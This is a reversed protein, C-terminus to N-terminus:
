VVKDQKPQLWNIASAYSAVNNLMKSMKSLSEGISSASQGISPQSEEPKATVEVPSSYSGFLSQKPQVSKFTNYISQFASNLKAQGGESSGTPPSGYSSAPSQVVSKLADQLKVEDYGRAPAQNYTEYQDANESYGGVLGGEYGGGGGGNNSWGDGGGGSYGAGGLGGLVEAIKAVANGKHNLLAATAAGGGSILSALGKGKALIVKSATNGGARIVVNSAKGTASILNSAQNVVSAKVSFASGLARSGSDLFGTALHAKSRLVESFRAPVHSLSGVIVKATEGKQAVAQQVVKGGQHLIQSGVHGKTTLLSQSLAAGTQGVTSVTNVLSNLVGGAGSYGGGGGSNHDGSWGPNHHDSVPGAAPAGYDPISKLPVGYSQGGPNYGGGQDYSYDGGGVSPGTADYNSYIIDNQKVPANYFQNSHTDAATAPQRQLHVSEPKKLIEQISKPAGYNSNAYSAVVPRPPDVYYTQPATKSDYYVTRVPSPASESGTYNAELYSAYKQSSPQVPEM